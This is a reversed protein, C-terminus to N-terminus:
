PPGHSNDMIGKIPYDLSMKREFTESQARNVTAKKMALRARQSDRKRTSVDNLQLSKIVFSLLITNFISAVLTAGLIYTLLCNSKCSGILADLLCTPEHRGRPTSSAPRSNISSAAGAAAAAIVPEITQTNCSGDHPSFTTLLDSSMRPLPPLIKNSKTSTAENLRLTKSQSWVSLSLRAHQPLVRAVLM